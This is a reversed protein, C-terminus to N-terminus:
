GEYCGIDTVSSQVLAGNQLHRSQYCSICVLSHHRKFIGFIGLLPFKHQLYASYDLATYAFTRLTLANAFNDDIRTSITHLERKKECVVTFYMEPKTGNCETAIFYKKVSDFAAYIILSLYLLIICYGVHKSKKYTM